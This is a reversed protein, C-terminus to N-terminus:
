PCTARPCWSVKGSPTVVVSYPVGLRPTLTILTNAAGGGTRLGFANFGVTGATINTIRDSLTIPQFAGGFNLSAKGATMGTTVTIVSGRSMAATRVMSLNGALETTAQRLDYRAVWEQYSPIAIMSLIGVIATVIMVEILSFGKEGSLHVAKM